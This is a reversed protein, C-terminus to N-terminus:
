KSSFSMESNSSPSYASSILSYRSSSLLKVPLSSSREKEFMKRFAELVDKGPSEIKYLLSNEEDDISVTCKLGDFKGIEVMNELIKM